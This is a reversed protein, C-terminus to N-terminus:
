EEELEFTDLNRILAQIDYDDEQVVDSIPIYDEEKTEQRELAVQFMHNDIAEQLIEEARLLHLFREYDVLVGVADKNKNSSIVYVEDSSNVAYSHLIETLKPTRTLETVSLTNEKVFELSASTLKKPKGYTYKKM